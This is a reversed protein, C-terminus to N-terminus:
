GAQGFIYDYFSLWPQQSSTGAKTSVLTADLFFVPLSVVEVHKPPLLGTNMKMILDPQWYLLQVAQESTIGIAVAVAHILYRDKSQATSEPTPM